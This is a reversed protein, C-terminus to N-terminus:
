IDESGNVFSGKFKVNKGLKRHLKLFKIVLAATDDVDKSSTHAGDKNIGFYNRLYDLSYRSPEVMNEFWLFCVLMTDIKDRFQFPYKTKHRACMREVIREDYRMINHGAAIPNGFDKGTKNFSACFDVFRQWVLSQLPAEKVTEDSIKHINQAQKYSDTDIISLDMPQMYSDFRKTHVTLNRSNIVVASISLPECVAPDMGTTEFDYVVIDSNNM